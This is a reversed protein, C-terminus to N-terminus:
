FSFYYLIISVIAYENIENITDLTMYKKIQYESYSTISHFSFKTSISLLAFWDYLNYVYQDPFYGKYCYYLIKYFSIHDVNKLDIEKINSDSNLITASVNLMKFYDTYKEIIESHVYFQINEMNINNIYDLIKKKEISLIFM